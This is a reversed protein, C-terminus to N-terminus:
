MLHRAIDYAHLVFRPLKLFDKAPIRLILRYFLIQKSNLFRLIHSYISITCCCLAILAFTWILNSIAPLEQKCLTCNLLFHVWIGSDPLPLLWIKRV